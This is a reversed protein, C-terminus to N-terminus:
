QLGGMDNDAGITPYPTLPQTTAQIQQESMPLAQTQQQQPIQAKLDAVMANQEATVAPDSMLQQAPIGGAIMTERLLYDIVQAKKNDDLTSAGLLQSIIPLAELREANAIEQQMLGATGRAIINVDGKITEDDSNVMNYAWLNQMAPQIRTEDKNHFYSKIIINSTSALLKMGRFTSEGGRM